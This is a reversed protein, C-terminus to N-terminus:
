PNPPSSVAEKVPEIKPEILGLAVAKERNSPDELFAVLKTPDNDFQERTHADLLMFDDWADQVTMIMQQLGDYKSIDAFVPENRNLSDVMGTKEFKKIISNIDAENRDSQKTLSEEGTFDITLKQQGLYSM